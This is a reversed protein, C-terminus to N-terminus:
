ETAEVEVTEGNNGPYESFLAQALITASRGPAALESSTSVAFRARGEWITQATRSNRIMVRLERGVRNRSGGGDLNVSVGLAVGSGYSGTSASGGVSVPGNSRGNGGTHSSEVSVQAVFIAKESNAETYGLQVLERAIAAKFPDLELSDKDTGPASAIFIEGPTDATM